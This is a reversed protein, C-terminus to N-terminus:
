RTGARAHSRASKEEQRKFYIGLAIVIMVMSGTLSLALFENGTM